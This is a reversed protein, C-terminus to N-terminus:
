IVKFGFCVGPKNENWGYDPAGIYNDLEENSEFRQLYFNGFDNYNSNQSLLSIKQRSLTDKTLKELEPSLISSLNGGNTLNQAVRFLYQM